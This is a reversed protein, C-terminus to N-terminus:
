FITSSCDGFYKKSKIGKILLKYWVFILSLKPIRLKLESYTGPKLKACGEFLHRAVKLDFYSRSELLGRGRILPARGYDGHIETNMGFVPFFHVLFFDTNPSKERLYDSKLKIYTYWRMISWHEGYYLLWDISRTEIHHPVTTTLSNVHLQVLIYVIFCHFDEINRFYRLNYIM